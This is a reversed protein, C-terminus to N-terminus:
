EFVDLVTRWGRVDAIHFQKECVENGQNGGLLTVRTGDWATVFGVHGSSGAALPRTVAVVGYEPGSVAKGNNLWDAARASFKLPMHAGGSEKICWSVFAACWAVDDPQKGLSTDVFYKEIEPNSGPDFEKVGLEHKAKDMWPVDSSDVAAPAPGSVLEPEVKLLMSVALEFGANLKTVISERLASVLIKDPLLAVRRAFIPDLTESSISGLVKRLPKSKSDDKLLLQLADPGFIRALYLEEGTPLRKDPAGEKVALTLKALFRAAVAAQALPDFRADDGYGTQASDNNSKWEQETLAFPGFANGPGDVAVNSMVSEAQALAILFHASTGNRRAVDLCTQAFQEQDFQSLVTNAKLWDRRAFGTRKSTDPATVEVKWWLEDVSALKSVPMDTLVMLDRGADLRAEARLWFPLNDANYLGTPVPVPPPPPPPPPVDTQPGLQIANISILHKLLAAAGVQDSDRTADFVHDAVFKGKTAQTTFSWLYASRRPPSLNRYGYGNYRELEYLAREISWADKGVNQLGKLLLADIASETWTFVPSGTKPHGKPENVTVATLPDGNHLHLNLKFSSELCHIAAIIFWPVKTAQSVVDYQSRLTLAKQAAATVDNLKAPVVEAANWLSRYEAALDVFMM